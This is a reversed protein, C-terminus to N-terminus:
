PTVSWKWQIPAPRWDMSTLDRVEATDVNERTVLVPEFQTVATGGQDHAKEVILRVAETGMRRTDQIVFSDVAPNDFALSEPDFAIVKVSRRLQSSGIAALTGRTSTPTLTVIADLGPNKKLTEEALQQEHAVNFSGMRKALVHINPYAKTLFQELSRARTMIGSIDPNVGLVAVSGQGHLMAALRQAAIRGGAGDDNLIYSLRNDAKISLPSGVIVIPLGRLMARRVPTILAIAHDPALILGQYDGSAAVRQVLAIQGQIDDERTPANWYIRAGLKIGADMAGRHEPEWLM